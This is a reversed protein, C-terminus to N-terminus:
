HLPPPSPTGPIHALSTGGGSSAAFCANNTGRPQWSNRRGHTKTCTHWVWNVSQDKIQEFPDTGVCSRITLDDLSPARRTGLKRDPFFGVCAAKKLMVM